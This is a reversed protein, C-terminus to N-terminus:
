IAALAAEAKALEARAATVAAMAAARAPNTAKWLLPGRDKANFSSNPRGHPLDYLETIRYYSDVLHAMDFGPSTGDDAFYVITAGHSTPVGVMGTKGNATVVRQGLKLDELKLAFPQGDTGTGNPEAALEFHFAPYETQDGDDDNIYIDGDVQDRLVTYIANFSIFSYDRYTCRVETGKKFM